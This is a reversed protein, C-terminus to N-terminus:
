RNAHGERKTTLFVFVTCVITICGFLTFSATLNKEEFLYFCLASLVSAVSIMLFPLSSKTKIILLNQNKM